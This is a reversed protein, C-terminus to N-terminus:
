LPITADTVPSRNWAVAEFGIGKAIRAVERGIGGYGLIGFSKGFLQLGELARWGGARIERDMTAVNRAAALALAMTHEAVATNGYGKITSVKIGLSAATNLDIFSSAGTGLFVIHRLDGCLQLVAEPLFTSDNICTDYGTLVTPVDAPRVPAMNIAIEPDPGPQYIRRWVRLLDENCDLFVIKSMKAETQEHGTPGM